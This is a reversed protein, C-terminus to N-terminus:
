KSSFIKIINDIELNDFNINYNIMIEKLDNWKLDKNEGPIFKTFTLKKNSLDGYIATRIGNFLGGIKILEDRVNVVREEFLFTHYIKLLGDMDNKEFDLPFNYMKFFENKIKIEVIYEESNVKVKYIDSIFDVEIEGSKPLEIPEIISNYGFGVDVLYYKENLKVIMITHTTFDQITLVPVHYITFQLYKLIYYLFSNLQFCLGGKKQKIIYKLLDEFELSKMKREEKKKCGEELLELNHYIFRTVHLKTLYKLTELDNEKLSENIEMLKLYNEYQEKSISMKKLFFQVFLFIDDYLFPIFFIMMALKNADKLPTNPFNDNSELTPIRSL